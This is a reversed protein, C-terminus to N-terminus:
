QGTKMVFSIRTQDPFATVRIRAGPMWVHFAGSQILGTSRITMQGTYTNSGGAMIAPIKWDVFEAHTAALEIPEGKEVGIVATRSANMLGLDSRTLVLISSYEREMNQATRDPLVLLDERTWENIMKMQM